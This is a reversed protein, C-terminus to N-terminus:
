FPTYTETVRDAQGTAYISIHLELIIRLVTKTGEIYEIRSKPANITNDWAGEIYVKNGLTDAYEQADIRLRTFTRITDIGEEYTMGDFFPTEPNSSSKGMYAIAEHFNTSIKDSWLDANVRYFIPMEGSVRSYYVRPFRLRGPVRGDVAVNSNYATDNNLFMTNRRTEYTGTFAEAINKVLLNREATRENGEADIATYTIKEEGARNLYGINTTRLDEIDSEVIIDEMRTANDEVQIGVFKIDRVTRVPEVYKTYLLVVTDHPRNHSGAFVVTDSGDASVSHGLIYISPPTTDKPGCSTIAISFFLVLVLIFWTLNKMYINLKTLYDVYIKYHM